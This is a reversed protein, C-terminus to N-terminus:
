NRVELESYSMDDISQGVDCRVLRFSGGAKEIM